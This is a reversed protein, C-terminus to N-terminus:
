TRVEAARAQADAFRAPIVQWNFPNMCLLQLMRFSTEALISASRTATTVPPALPM